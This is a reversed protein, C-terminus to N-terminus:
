RRSRRPWATSRPGRRSSSPCPGPPSPRWPRMAAPLASLAFPAWVAAPLARAASDLGGAGLGRRLGLRPRRGRGRGGFGISPWPSPSSPRGGFAVVVFAASRWPAVAVVLAAALFAGALFASRTRRAARSSRRGPVAPANRNAPRGHLGDALARRSRRRRPAQPEAPVRVAGRWRPRRGDDAVILTAARRAAARWYFRTFSAADTVGPRPWRTAAARRSTASTSATPARSACTSAAAQGSPGPLRQRRLLVAGERRAPAAGADPRHRRGAFLANALIRAM